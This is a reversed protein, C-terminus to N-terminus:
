KAESVITVRKESGRCVWEKNEVISRNENVKNRRVEGVVGGRMKGM